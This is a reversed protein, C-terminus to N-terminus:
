QLFDVGVGWLEEVDFVGFDQMGCVWNEGLIVLRQVVMSDMEM